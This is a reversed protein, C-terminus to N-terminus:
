KLVRGNARSSFAGRDLLTAAHHFGESLYKADPRALLAIVTEKM